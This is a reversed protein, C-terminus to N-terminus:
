ARVPCRTSCPYSSAACVTEATEALVVARTRDPRFYGNDTKSSAARERKFSATKRSTQTAQQPQMRRTAGYAADTGSLAYWARLCIGTRMCIDTGPLVHSIRMPLYRVTGLMYAYASLGLIMGSLSQVEKAGALGEGCVLCKVAFKGVNSAGYCIPAHESRVRTCYERSRSRTTSGLARPTRVSDYRYWDRYQTKPISSSFEPCRMASMAYRARLCIAAYALDTGSRDRICM